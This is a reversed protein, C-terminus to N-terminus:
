WSVQSGGAGKECAQDTIHLDFDNFEVRTMEGRRVDVSGDAFLTACYTKTTESTVPEVPEVPEQAIDDAPDSEGVPDQSPESEVPPQSAVQRTVTFKIPKQVRLEYSGPALEDLVFEGSSSVSQTKYDGGTLYVEFGKAFTRTDFETGMSFSYDASALLFGNEDRVKVLESFRHYLNDADHFEEGEVYIKIVPIHGVVCGRSFRKQCRTGDLPEFEGGGESPLPIRDSAPEVFCGSLGLTAMVGFVWRAM